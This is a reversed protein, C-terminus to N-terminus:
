RENTAKEGGRRRKRMGSDRGFGVHMEGRLVRSGQRYGEKGGSREGGTDLGSRNRLDAQSLNAGDALVNEVNTTIDVM